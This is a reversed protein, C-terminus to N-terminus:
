AFAVSVVSGVDFTDDGLDGASAASAELQAVSAGFAVVGPEFAAGGGEVQAVQDVPAQVEGSL